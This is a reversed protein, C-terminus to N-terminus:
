QKDSSGGQATYVLAAITPRAARLLYPWFQVLTQTLTCSRQQRANPDAPAADSGGGSRRMNLVDTGSRTRRLPRPARVTRETFGHATTRASVTARAAQPPVLSWPLGDFRVDRAGAVSGAAAAVQGEGPRSSMGPPTSRTGAAARAPAVGSMTTTMGPPRPSGPSASPM